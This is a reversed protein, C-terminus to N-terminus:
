KVRPANNAAPASSRDNVDVTDAVPATVWDTDVLSSACAAAHPTPRRRVSTLPASAHLADGANSTNPLTPRVTERSSYSLERTANLAPTLTASPSFFGAVRDLFGYVISDPAPPLSQGGREV